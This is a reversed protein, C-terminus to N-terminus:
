EAKDSQLTAGDKKLFLFEVRKGLLFEISPDRHLNSPPFITRHPTHPAPHPTQRPTPPPLPLRPPPPTTLTAFVLGAQNCHWVFLLVTTRAWAPGSVRVWGGVASVRM